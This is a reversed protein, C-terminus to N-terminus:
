SLRAKLDKVEKTRAELEKKLADQETQEPPVEESPTEEAKKSADDSQWRRAIRPSLTAASIRPATATVL